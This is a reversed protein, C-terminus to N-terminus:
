ALRIGSLYLSDACSKVLIKAKVDEFHLSYRCNVNNKDRKNILSNFFNKAHDIINATINGFAADANYGFKM